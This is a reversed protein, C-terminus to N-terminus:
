RAAKIKALAFHSKPVISISTTSGARYFRKSQAAFTATDATASYEISASFGFGDFISATGITKSHAHNRTTKPSRAPFSARESHGPNSRVASTQSGSSSTYLIPEAPTSGGSTPHLM